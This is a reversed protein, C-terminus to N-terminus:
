RGRAAPRARPDGPVAPGERRGRRAADSRGDGGRVQGAPVAACHWEQQDGPLRRVADLLRGTTEREVAVSEAAPASDYHLELLEDTPVELRYRSSKYHDAILNRAITTLWAGFDSGQWRFEGIRRLARLFTESVIDEALTATGVRYYVYRYIGDVYRDYLAGFADGDGGRARDVLVRVGDRDRASRGLAGPFTVTLALGAGSGAVSATLCALGAASPQLRRATNM